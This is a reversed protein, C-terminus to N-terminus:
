TWGRVRAAVNPAVTVVILVLPWINGDKFTYAEFLTPWSKSQWLGFSFEFVLTLVLWGFGIGWLHPVHRTGFWPLALYAAVLILASLLAGSLVLGSPAGLKPLLVAERVAGNLIALLLIVVWVALAKLAVAAVV